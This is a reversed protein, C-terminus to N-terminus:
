EGEHADSAPKNSKDAPISYKSPSTPVVPNEISDLQELLNSWQGPKLVAMAQRGLKQNAGFRPSFGVHIHDAHDAMALTNAGIDLLSIIQDPRLTGQLLMLRRVAQDTIGGRGQNGMIPTGNIAAIDVANGSPHASLNGSATFISGRGSRLSTVRPRMGSESLYAMTALVRRDIQGSRIDQRGGEYVEIREDALVRRELLGKPLLLIQGVSFGSGGGRLANRGSARYIATAELLKWGDLIPKPDITPAGRGAPRISFELHSTEGATTAGLRGLVTGGIVQSGKELRRLSVDDGDAGIPQAFKNRYIQVGKGNSARRDLLQELGGSRKAGPMEPHAFLRRKTALRSKPASDSGKASTGSGKRRAGRARKAPGDDDAPQRGASAPAAPKADKDAGPTGPANAARASVDTVSDARAEGKPVPHYRAVSRLGTYTYANGYVDQLRVTGAERDVATVRGDQTAVAPSGPRAYIKVSRRGAKSEVVNAANQGARV